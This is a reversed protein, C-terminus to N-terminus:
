RGSPQAAAPRAAQQAQGPQWGAPPTISAVPVLKNLELVIADTIDVHPERAVVAQPQLVLDIKKAKMTAKIAENLKSAVQEEVYATALNVRQQLVKMEQQASNRKAQLAQAQPQVTAATAGPQQAVANYADVLPKMETQIAAARANSADIDAKYTVKMQGVATQYAQSKVVAAEYNAMAIGAKSQAAAPVAIVAPTALIALGLAASKILTKSSFTM